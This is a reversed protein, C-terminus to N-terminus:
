FKITTSLLFLIGAIQYLFATSDRFQKYAAVGLLFVWLFEIFVAHLGLTLLNKRKPRSLQLKKLVKEKPCVSESDSAFFFM